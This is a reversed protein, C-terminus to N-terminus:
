REAVEVTFTVTNLNPRGSRLFYLAGCGGPVTPTYDGQVLMSTPEPPVAPSVPLGDTTPASFSGTAPDRTARALRWILPTPAISGFLTSGDASLEPFRFPVNIGPIPSGSGFPESTTARTHILAQASDGNNIVSFLTLEDSSVSLSAEVTGFTNSDVVFPSNRDARTALRIPVAGAGAGCSFYLRLGDGTVDVSGDTATSCVPSLETLESEAGFADTRAARRRVYVLPHAYYLELEDDTVSLSTPTANPDPTFALRTTTFPAACDGSPVGASGGTAGSSGGSGAGTGGSSSGSSGGSPAASGGSGAGM